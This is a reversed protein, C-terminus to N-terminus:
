NTRIKLTTKELGDSTITLHFESKSGKTARVIVLAMGNYADRKHSAFSLLNAPDGNDTGVIEGQGEISFNINNNADPVMLGNKDTIKVTIFALDEGDSKIESRDAEASLKSAKDTTKVTEQAWVKGNKYSIVRLEGAQYKV